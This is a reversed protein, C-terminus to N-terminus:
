SRGGCRRLGGAPRRARIGAYEGLIASLRNMLLGDVDGFIMSTDIQSPENEATDRRIKAPLLEKNLM